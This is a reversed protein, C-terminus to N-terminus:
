LEVKEDNDFTCLSGELYDGGSDITAANYSVKIFFDGCAPDFFRQGVALQEFTMGSEQKVDIIDYDVIEQDLVDWADGSNFSWEIEDMAEAIDETDLVLRVKVDIYVKAM